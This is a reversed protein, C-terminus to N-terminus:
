EKPICVSIIPVFKFDSATYGYKSYNPNKPDILPKVDPCGDMSFLRISILPKRQKHSLESFWTKYHVNNASKATKTNASRITCQHEYFDTFTTVGSPMPNNSDHPITASGQIGFCANSYRPQPRFAEGSHLTEGGITNPVIEIFDKLDRQFSTLKNGSKFTLTQKAISKSNVNNTFVLDWLPLKSSNNNLFKILSDKINNGHGVDVNFNQIINIIDTIPIDAKFDMDPQSTITIPSASPSYNLFSVAPTGPKQTAYINDLVAINNNIQTKLNAVDFYNLDHVGGWFTYKPKRRGGSTNYMRGATIDAVRSKNKATPYKIKGKALTPPSVIKINLNYNYPNSKIFNMTEIQDVLDRLVTSICEFYADSEFNIWIRFLDDYNPRYSFWRAMQLLTDYSSSDRHFVTICLHELTLGRSVSLGGIVIARTQPNATYDLGDPAPIIPHSTKLLVDTLADSLPKKDLGNVIHLSIKKIQKQIEVWVDNWDYGLTSYNHGNHDTDFVTKIASQIKPDSSLIADRYSEHLDYMTIYMNIHDEQTHSYNVLMTRPKDLDGRLDRIANVIYFSYLADILHPILNPIDNDGAMTIVQNKHMGEVTPPKTPKVHTKDVGIYKPSPTLSFAYDRPFLTFPKGSSGPLKSIVLNAFPTATIAMYHFYDFKNLIDIVAGNIKTVKVKSTNISTHDAEDDILLLNTKHDPNKKKIRAFQPDLANLISELIYIEKKVVIINSGTTIYNFRTTTSYHSGGIMHVTTITGFQEDLREFTQEHLKDNNSTLVIICRFNNSIAKAIVGTYFSTKGSQVQGVVLGLHPQPLPANFPPNFNPLFPEVNNKIQQRIKTAGETGIEDELDGCYDDFATGSTPSKELQPEDNYLVTISGIEELQSILEWLKGYIKIKDDLTIPKPGDFYNNFIDKIDDISISGDKLQALIRDLINQAHANIEEDSLEGVDADRRINFIRCLVDLIHEHMASIEYDEYDLDYLKSSWIEAQIDDFTVPNENSGQKQNLIEIISGIIKDCIAKQEKTLEFVDSNDDYGNNSEKNYNLEDEYNM